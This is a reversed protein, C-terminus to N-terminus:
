LEKDGKQRKWEEVRITNNKYLKSTYEGDDIIVLKKLDKTIISMDKM